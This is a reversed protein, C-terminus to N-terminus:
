LVDSRDETVDQLDCRQLALWDIFHAYWKEYEMRSDDPILSDRCFSAEMIFLYWPFDTFFVEHNCFINDAFRQQFFHRIASTFDGRAM